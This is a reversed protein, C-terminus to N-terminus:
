RIYNWFNNHAIQGNPKQFCNKIQSSVYVYETISLETQETLETLWFFVFIPSILINSKENRSDPVYTVHRCTSLQFHINVALAKLM